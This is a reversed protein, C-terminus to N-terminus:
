QFKSEDIQMPESKRGEEENRRAKSLESEDLLEEERLLEEVEEDSSSKDEMIPIKDSELIKDDDTKIRYGFIDHEGQMGFKARLKMLILEITTKMTACKKEDLQVNIASVSKELESFVEIKGNSRDDDDKALALIIEDSDGLKEM